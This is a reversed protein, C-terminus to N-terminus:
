SNLPSYRPAFAARVAKVCARSALWCRRSAQARARAIGRTMFTAFKPGGQMYYQDVEDFVFGAERVLRQIDRNM